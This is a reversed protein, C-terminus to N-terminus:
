KNVKKLVKFMHQPDGWRQGCDKIKYQGGNAAFSLRADNGVGLELLWEGGHSILMCSGDDGLHEFRVDLEVTVDVWEEKRKPKELAKLEELFKSAYRKKNLGIGVKCWKRYNTGEAECMYGVFDTKSKGRLPCFERCHEGDMDSDMRHGREWSQVSYECLPCNNIIKNYKGWGPWASKKAEGTEALWTWLEISIDIAKEKTLEM